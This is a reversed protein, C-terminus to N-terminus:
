HTHTKIDSDTFFAKCLQLNLQKKHLKVSHDHKSKLSRLRFLKSGISSDGNLYKYVSKMDSFVLAKIKKLIVFM